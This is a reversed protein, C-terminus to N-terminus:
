IAWTSASLRQALSRSVAAEDAPRAPQSALTSLFSAALLLSGGGAFLLRRRPIAFRKPTFTLTALMGSRQLRCPALLREARPASRDTKRHVDAPGARRQSVRERSCAGRRRRARNPRGATGVRGSTGRARAGGLSGGRAR